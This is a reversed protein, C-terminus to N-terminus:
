RNSPMFPLRRMNQKGKNGTDEEIVLKLILREGDRVVTASESDVSEVKWDNKNMGQSVRHIENSDLDRIIAVKNEPMMAVGELKLRLPKRPIRSVAEKKEPEAPPLRGEVFLPRQTIEDYAKISIPVFRATKARDGGAKSNEKDVASETVMADASYPFRWQFYLYASTLGIALLLLLTMTNFSHRWSSM